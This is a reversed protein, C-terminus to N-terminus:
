CSYVAFIKKDKELDEYSKNRLTMTNEPLNIDFTKIINKCVNKLILVIKQLSDNIQSNREISYDM